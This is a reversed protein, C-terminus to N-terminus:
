SAQLRDLFARIPAATAALDEYMPFHGLGGPVAIEAEPIGAAIFDAYMSSEEAELVVRRGEPNRTTTQLVLTPMATCTVLAASSRDRDWRIMSGFASAVRKPPMAKARKLLVDGTAPPMKPGMMQGFFLDIFGEPDHDLPALFSDPDLDSLRGGDLLVIGAVSDPKHAAVGMAIRCGLSHGIIVSRRAVALEVQAIMSDMTPLPATQDPDFFGLDIAQISWVDGLEARLGDWDEPGCALGHVFCLSLPASTM